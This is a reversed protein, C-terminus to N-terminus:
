YFNNYHALINVDFPCVYRIIQLHTFSTIRKLLQTVSKMVLSGLKTLLFNEIALSLLRYFSISPNINFPLFLSTFLIM